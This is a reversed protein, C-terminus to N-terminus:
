GGALGLIDRLPQWEGAPDRRGLTGLGIHSIALKARVEADTFPGHSQGGLRLFIGDGPADPSRHQVLDAAQTPSATPTASTPPPQAPTREAGGGLHQQSDVGGARLLIRRVQAASWRPWGLRAKVGRGELERGIQRLSLGQNRLEHVVPILPAYFERALRALVPAAAAGGKLNAGVPFGYGSRMQLDGLGYLYRVV